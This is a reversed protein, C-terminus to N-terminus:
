VNITGKIRAEHIAGALAFEFTAGSYIRDARLAPSVESRSPFNMSFDAQGDETEAIIGQTFAQTLVNTLAGELAAIGRNDYPLKPAAQLLQQLSNEANVKVWDKAHMVDIYEGSVVKGESTQDQGAKRVYAYGGNDHIDQLEAATLDEPTIGILTKFKWTISGVERNGNEGVTAADVHEGTAGHVAVFTRDYDQTNFTQLTTLDDVQASYLKNSGEIVDAIPEIEASDAETTILFYWDEALLSTVLEAATETATSDYAAVAFVAPKGEQALMAAAKQYIASQDDFGDTVLAELDSYNTYPHGGTKEGIILPKGFGVLGAAQAIEIDVTVDKIPM